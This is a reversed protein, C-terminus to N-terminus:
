KYNILNELLYIESNEFFNKKLKRYAKKNTTENVIKKFLEMQLVLDQKM